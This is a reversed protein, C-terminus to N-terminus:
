FSRCGRRAKPLMPTARVPRGARMSLRCRESTRRLRARACRWVAYGRASIAVAKFAMASRLTMPLITSFGYLRNGRIRALARQAAERHDPTIHSSVIKSRPRLCRRMTPTDSVPLVHSHLGRPSSIPLAGLLTAKVHIPTQRDFACYHAAILNRRVAVAALGRLKKWFNRRLGSKDRYSPPYRKLM